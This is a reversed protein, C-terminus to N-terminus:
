YEKAVDEMRKKLNKFKGPYFIDTLYTGFFTAWGEKLYLENWWKM